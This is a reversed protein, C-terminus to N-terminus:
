PKRRAIGILGLLGSGFLYLAPPIPIPSAPMWAMGVITDIGTVFPTITGDLEIISIGYFERGVFLRGSEDFILSLPNPINAFVEQMVTGNSEWLHLIRDGSRDAVYVSDDDAVAVRWLFSGLDTALLTTSGDPSIKWLEGNTIPNNNSVYLNGNSDIDIGNIAQSLYSPSGVTAFLSANGDADIAYVSNPSSYSSYITGDPAIALGGLNVFNDDFAYFTSRNGNADIKEITDVPQGGGDSFYVNQDNDVVIGDLGAQGLGAEFISVAGFENISYITSDTTATHRATV